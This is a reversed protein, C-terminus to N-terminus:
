GIGDRYNAQGFNKALGGLTLDDDVCMADVVAPHGVERRGFAAVEIKDVGGVRFVADPLHQRDDSLANRLNPNSGIRSIWTSQGIFRPPRPARERLISSCFASFGGPSIRMSRKPHVNQGPSLTM